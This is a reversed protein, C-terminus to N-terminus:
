WHIMWCAAVCGRLNLLPLVDAAFPMTASDYFHV